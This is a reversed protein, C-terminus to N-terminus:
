DVPCPEAGWVDAAYEAITRDSSFRGSYKIANDVLNVLVQRLQGPDAAVNTVRKPAKLEIQIVDPVYTKAAEVVLGALKVPDCREITLPLQDADLRGAVLLDNVITGLRDSESAIVGLLQDKIEPDSSSTRAGSRRRRAM